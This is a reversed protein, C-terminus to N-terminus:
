YSKARSAKVYSIGFIILVTWCIGLVKLTHTFRQNGTMKTKLESIDNTAILRTSGKRCIKVTDNTKELLGGDVKEGNKLTIRLPVNGAACPEGQQISTQTKGSQQQGFGKCPLFVFSFALLLTTILRM